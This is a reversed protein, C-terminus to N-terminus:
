PKSQNITVLPHHLREPNVPDFLDGFLSHLQIRQEKKHSRKIDQWPVVYLMQPLEKNGKIFTTDLDIRDEASVKLALVIFFLVFILQNKKPM